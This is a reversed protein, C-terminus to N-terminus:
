YIPETPLIPVRVKRLINIPMRSSLYNTITRFEHEVTVEAYAQGSSGTGRTVTVTPAPQLNKTESFVAEQVSDFPSIDEDAAHMAGNRAANTVTLTFYFIRAFDVGLVFMFVLLPLLVAMEVAAVGRRNKRNQFPRCGLM